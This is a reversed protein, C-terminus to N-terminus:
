LGVGEVLAGEVDLVGLERDDRRHDDQGGLQRDCQRCRPGPDAGSRSSGGPHRGLQRDPREHAAQDLADQGPGNRARGRYACECTERFLAARM